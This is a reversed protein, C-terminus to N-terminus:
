RLEPASGAMRAYQNMEEFLKTKEAETMQFAQAMPRKEYAQPTQVTKKNQELKRDVEKARKNDPVKASLNMAKIFKYSQMGIKYPDKLEVITKALEPEQEELIALTDPTVIDEFDSYQRKLNDLFQSERQNKLMKETEQKAIEEAIRQAEKRVLKSVKGKPIFEDDGISDLEDIEPKPAMQANMQSLVFKDILEKKENLERELERNKMKMQRWNRDQPDEVEQTQVKEQEVPAEQHHIAQTETEPTAIEQNTSQNEVEEM